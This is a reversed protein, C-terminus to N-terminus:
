FIEKVPGRKLVEEVTSQNIDFDEVSSVPVCVRGTKHHISWLSRVCRHRSLAGCDILIFDNKAPGLQTGGRSNQYSLVPFMATVPDLNQKLVTRIEDMPYLKNLRIYIHFSRSGSFRLKHALIKFNIDLPGGKVTTAAEVVKTAWRLHPMGFLEPSKPDLDVIVTDTRELDNIYSVEPIFEVAGRNVFYHFDVPNTRSQWSGHIEFFQKTRRQEDVSPQGWMDTRNERLTVLEQDSYYRRMGQSQETPSWRLTVFRRHCQAVVGEAVWPTSYFLKPDPSPVLSKLVTM